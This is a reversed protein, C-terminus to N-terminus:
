GGERKFRAGKKLEFQERVFLREKTRDEKNLLLMDRKRERKVKQAKMPAVLLYKDDYYRPIPVERGDLVVSDHRFADAGYRDFWEKGLGPNRSMVRFEPERGNYDGKSGVKKMVYGAVYACSKFDVNGIINEGLPWLERLEQSKYLASGTESQKYFRQDPFCTNFLLLHYHPRQTSDGYEGCGYFRLGPERAKRLRKM